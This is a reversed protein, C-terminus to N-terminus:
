DTHAFRALWACDASALGLFTFWVVCAFCGLRKPACHDHFKNSFSLLRALSGLLTSCGLYDSRLALEANSRAM